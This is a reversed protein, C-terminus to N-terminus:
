LSYTEYNIYKKPFKTYVCEFYKIGLFDLIKKVQESSMGNYGDFYFKIKVKKDEDIIYSIHEDNKHKPRIYALTYTKNKDKINLDNNIINNIHVSDTDINYDDMMNICHGGCDPCINSEYSPSIISGCDMCKRM